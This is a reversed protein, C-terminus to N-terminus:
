VNSWLSKEFNSNLYTQYISKVILTNNNNKNNKTFVHKITKKKQTDNAM